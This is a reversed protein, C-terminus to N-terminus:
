ESVRVHVVPFFYFNNYTLLKTWKETYTNIRKKERYLIIITGIYLIYWINNYYLRTDTDCGDVVIETDAM